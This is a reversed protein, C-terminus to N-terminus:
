PFFFFSSNRLTLYVAFLQLTLASDSHYTFAGSQFQVGFGLSFYGFDLSSREGESGICAGLKEKTLEHINKERSAKQHM